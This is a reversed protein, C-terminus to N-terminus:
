DSRVWQTKDMLEDLREITRNEDIIVPQCRRKFEDFSSEYCQNSGVWLAFLRNEQEQGFGYTLLSIGEDYPMGKVDSCPYRRLM